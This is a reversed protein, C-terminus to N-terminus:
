HQSVGSFINEDEQITEQVKLTLTLTEGNVTCYIETIDINPKTTVNQQWSWVTGTYM